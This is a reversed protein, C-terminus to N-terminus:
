AKVEHDVDREQLNSSGAAHALPVLLLSFLVVIALKLYKPLYVTKIDAFFSSLNQDSNRSSLFSEPKLLYRFVNM